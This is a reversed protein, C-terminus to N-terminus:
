IVFQVGKPELCKFYDNILFVLFMSDRSVSVERRLECVRRDM